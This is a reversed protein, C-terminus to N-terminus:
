VDYNRQKPMYIPQKNTKIKVNMCDEIKKKPMADQTFLLKNSEDLHNSGLESLKNKEQKSNNSSEIDIYDKQVVSSMDVFKFHQIAIKAFDHFAHVVTADPEKNRLIQKALQLIRKKYIANKPDIFPNGISTKDTILKSYANHNTFYQLDLINCSIDMYMM